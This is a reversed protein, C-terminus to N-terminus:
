SKVMERFITEPIDKAANVPYIGARNNFREMEQHLTRYSDEDILDIKNILLCDAARVQSVVFNETVEYLEAWREADVLVLTKLSEYCHCYKEIVDVINSPIALGTTEIILWDPKVSDHIENIAQVLDGTIQCCVCGAFIGRVSLGQAAIVKDDIGVEGIENEVIAVTQKNQVLYKATQLIVSTKGSGLFGGFLLIKM